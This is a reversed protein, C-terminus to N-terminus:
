GAISGTKIIINLSGSDVGARDDLTTFTITNLFPYVNISTNPSRNSYPTSITTGGNRAAIGTRYVFPARPTNFTITSTSLNNLNDRGTSTITM